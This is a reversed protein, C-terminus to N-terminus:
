FHRQWCLTISFGPPLLDPAHAQQACGVLLRIESHNVVANQKGIINYTLMQNVIQVKQTDDKIDGCNQVISTHKTRTNLQWQTM